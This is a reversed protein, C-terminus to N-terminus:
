NHLLFRSTCSVFRVGITFRYCSPILMRRRRRRCEEVPPTAYTVMCLREGRDPTARDMLEPVKVFAFTKPDEQITKDFIIRNMSRCFDINVERELVQMYDDINSCSLCMLLMMPLQMCVSLSDLVQMYDAINSCSLCMLMMPLQM